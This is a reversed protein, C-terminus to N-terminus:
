DVRTFGLAEMLLNFDKDCENFTKYVIQLPETNGHKFNIYIDGLFKYADRIESLCIIHSNLVIYEM